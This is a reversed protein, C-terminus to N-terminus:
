VDTNSRLLIRLRVDRRRSFPFRRLLCRLANSTVARGEIEPFRQTALFIVQSEQFLQFEFLLLSAQDLQLYGLLHEEFIGARLAVRPQVPGCPDPRQDGGIEPQLGISDGLDECLMDVFVDGLEAFWFDVEAGRVLSSRRQRARRLPLVGGARMLTASHASLFRRRAFSDPLLVPLHRVDVTSAARPGISATVSGPTCTIVTM